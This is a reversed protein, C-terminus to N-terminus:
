IGMRCIRARRGEARLEELKKKATIARNSAATAEKRAISEAQEADALKQLQKEIEAGIETPTRKANM